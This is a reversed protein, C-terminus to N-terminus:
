ANRKTHIGHLNTKAMSLLNLFIRADCMWRGKGREEKQIIIEGIWAIICYFLCILHCYQWIWVNTIKQLGINRQWFNLLFFALVAFNFQFAFSTWYRKQKSTTKNNTAFNLNQASSFFIGISIYIYIQLPMRVLRFFFYESCLKSILTSETWYAINSHM